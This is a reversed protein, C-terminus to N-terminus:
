AATTSQIDMSVEFANDHCANEVPAQGHWVSFPRDDKLSEGRRIGRNRGDRPRSTPSGADLHDAQVKRMGAADMRIHKSVKGMLGERADASGLLFPKSRRVM